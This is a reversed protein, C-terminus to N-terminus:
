PKGRIVHDLYYLAYAVKGPKDDEYPRSLKEFEEENFDIRGLERATFGSSVVDSDKLGSMLQAAKKVASLYGDLSKLDYDSLRFDPNTRLWAGWHFEQFGANASTQNFAINRAFYILARFEDNRFNEIGLRSPLQDPTIPDGNEDRLWVWNNKEMTKWFEDMGLGSLNAQIRVRARTDPGGDRSELFATFTHHGDTLYVRGGPGIVATKMPDLSDATEEGLPVTCECPPNDRLKAGPRVSKAKGQGNAECWDDFRKNIADKGFQYRGLKYYLEYYGLVAQTPHLDGIRVELLDGAKAEIYRSAQTSKVDSSYRKPLVFVGVLVTTLLIGIAAATLRRASTSVGSNM